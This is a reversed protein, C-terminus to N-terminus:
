KSIRKLNDKAMKNEPDLELAKRFDAIAQEISGIEQYVVGRNNYASFHYPNLELAKTYDAIAKQFEGTAYFAAGRNNYLAYDNPNLQIARTYTEIARDYKKQKYFNEADRYFDKSARIAADDIPQTNVSSNTESVPANVASNAPAPADVGQAPQRFLFISSLMVAAGIGLIVVFVATSTLKQGVLNQWFSTKKVHIRKRTALEVPSEQQPSVKVTEFPSIPEPEPQLSFNKLFDELDTRMAAATQYRKPPNGNLERDKELAKYIIQRLRLPIDESLPAPEKLMVAYMIESPEGLPFPVEGTLLHYLLIGVSWIDTQVNRVGEFSEPSMYPQTGVITSSILSTEMMRSLGFDVLRPTGDHMLINAPKIDRHVINKSHLYELGELVGTVIPVAETLPVKDDKRLRDALSGGEIYESVIYIQEDQIDADILPLVNRHGSAQEWLLTERRIAEFDVQGDRPLKIAFKRNLLVSQKEALWVEGFGGRALKSVLVYQGFKQGAQFM